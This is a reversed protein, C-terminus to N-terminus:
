NNCDQMTHFRELNKEHIRKVTGIGGGQAYGYNAMPFIPCEPPYCCKGGITENNEVCVIELPALVGFHIHISSSYPDTRPDGGSIGIIQGKKVNEDTKLEVGTLHSLIIKVDVGRIKGVIEVYYNAQEKDPTYNTVNVVQGDIPSIVYVLRPTEYNEAYRPYLDVASEDPDTEVIVVTDPYILKYPKCMESLLNEIPSPTPSPTYTPTPKRTRTSTPKRTRTSTPTPYPTLTYTPTPTPEYQRTIPAQVYVVPPQTPNQAIYTSTQPGCAGLTSNIFALACVGLVVRRLISMALVEETKKL